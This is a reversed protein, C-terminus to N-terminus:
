YKIACYVLIISLIILLLVFVADFVRHEYQYDRMRVIYKENRMEIIHKISLIAESLLLVMEPFSMTILISIFKIEIENILFSFIFSVVIGFATAPPVFKLLEYIREWSDDSYSSTKYFDYIRKSNYLNDLGREDLKEKLEKIFVAINELTVTLKIVENNGKIKIWGRSYKFHSCDISKIEDYKIVIDKKMNTYKISNEDLVVKVFKLKRLYIYYILFFLLTLITVLSIASWIYVKNFNLIFSKNSDSSINIILWFTSLFIVIYLLCMFFTYIPRRSHKRVYFEKM